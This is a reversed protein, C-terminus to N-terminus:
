GRRPRLLARIRRLPATMRWSRSTMVEDLLVRAASDDPPTGPAPLPPSEEDSQLASLQALLEAPEASRQRLRVSLEDLRDGLGTGLGGGLRALLEAEADARRERMWSARLALNCRLGSRGEDLVSAAIRRASEEPDMDSRLAFSAPLDFAEALGAAKQEYYSNDRLLIAPVGLLLSTLAVHYSCSVTLEAAAIAALAPALGTPLLVRPEAPEIGQAACAAALRDLAERENVHRDDYAILPQVVVPRGAGRGLEGALGAHFEAIGQPQGTVWPHEAIHLNLRLEDGAGAPPGAPRLKRLVGVADDATEVVRGTSGLAALADASRRDRAGLLEFSRLRGADAEELGGVWGPDVQLGSSLRCITTVEAEHLLTEANRLMALKREGWSPNLYGGGYLYLAAFPLGAPAPLPLLEDEHDEDPAFFVAHPSPHLFSGSLERHDALRSRELVPLSLLGPELQEFLALAADLQLLDGYNGSGDYGGILIAVSGARGIADITQPSAFFAPKAPIM